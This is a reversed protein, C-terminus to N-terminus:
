EKVLYNVPNQQRAAKVMDRVAKLMTPAHYPIGDKITWSIGGTSEDGTLPPINRPLLVSLDALPNGNVVVLDATYGIRVQGLHDGQGLVRASNVTAHKIVELPHFGAEQHLQLERLYGFGFLQYIYGGDEGTTIVGGMRAFDQLAQFWIQYNNKWFVEDTSTWGWFFSGHSDANPQFFRELGPHLYDKFWPSSIARQLDRSAEYIVLTPDWAVGAEAMGKLVEQLRSQDAERWLRGAYRFRHLENSYNMDAPFNQVGHLAADPVGYWHEITSTGAKINDWATMDEVGVHNAVKLQYQGALRSAETFTQQDMMGFKLGDAGQKHFGSIRKKLEAAQHNGWIGPYVFIRPAIIEHEASLKKQKLTEKLDSGLDRITTIGSALWLHHQYPQPMDLGGRSYMSHAHMNIFGPLVYSGTVDLMPLALESLKSEDGSASIQEIRGAKIHIDYPGEAPTGVGVVVMANTLLWEEHQQNHWTEDALALSSIVCFMFALKQNM